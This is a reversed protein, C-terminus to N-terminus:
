WKSLFRHRVKKLAIKYLSLTDEAIALERYITRSSVEMERALVELSIGTKNLLLLELLQKEKISFYM